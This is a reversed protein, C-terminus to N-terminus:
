TPTKETDDLAKAGFQTVRLPNILIIKKMNNYSLLHIRKLIRKQPRVHIWPGNQTYVDNEISQAKM